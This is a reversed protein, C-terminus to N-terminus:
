ESGGKGAKLGSYSWIRVSKVYHQIRHLHRYGQLFM